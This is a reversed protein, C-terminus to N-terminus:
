GEVVTTLSSAVIGEILCLFGLLMKYFILATLGSGAAAICIMYAPIMLKLFEIMQMMTEEVIGLVEHFANILVVLQCVIFFTKAAKAAGENKLASMLNSVLAVLIFLVLVSIFLRRWDDFVGTITGAIYRWFLAPDLAWNGKLVDEIFDMSDTSRGPLLDRLLNDLVSLDPLIDLEAWLSTEQSM